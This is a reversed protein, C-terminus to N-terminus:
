FSFINKIKKEDNRFNNMYIVKSFKQIGSLEIDFFIMLKM